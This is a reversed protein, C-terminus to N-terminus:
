GRNQMKLQLVLIPFPIAQVSLHIFINSNIDSVAAVFVLLEPVEGLDIKGRAKKSSEGPSNFIFMLLNQSANTLITTM